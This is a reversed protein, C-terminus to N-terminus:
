DIAESRNVTQGQQTILVVQQDNIVDILIFTKQHRMYELTFKICM